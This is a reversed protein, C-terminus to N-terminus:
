NGLNPPKTQPPPAADIKRAGGQNQFISPAARRLGVITPDEQVAAPPAQRPGSMQPIQVATASSNDLVTAQIGEPSTRIVFNYGQLLRSIVRALPGQFTGTIRHDLAVSSRYRLGLAGLATLAEDVTADNAELRVAEPMGTVHTEAHASPAANAVIALVLALPRAVLSRSPTPM